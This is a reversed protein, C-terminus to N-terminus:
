HNKRVLTVHRNRVKSKVGYRYKKQYLSINTFDAKPNMHLRTVFVTMKNKKAKKRYFAIYCSDVHPEQQNARLYSEMVSTDKQFFLVPIRRYEMGMYLTDRRVFKLGEWREMAKMFESESKDSKFYFSQTSDPYMMYRPVRSTSCMAFVTLVAICGAVFRPHPLQIPSFSLRQVLPLPILAILDTYDVVRAIPYLDLGNWGDIIGQSFPSKWFAFFLVTIALNWNKRKDNLFNLFLMLVIIGSFDSLKGTFWNSFEAKLFFDNVLLLALCLVFLPSLIYRINLKM